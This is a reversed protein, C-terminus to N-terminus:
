STGNTTLATVAGTFTTSGAGLTYKNNKRRGIRIGLATAIEEALPLGTDEFLENPILVIGTSMKYANLTV